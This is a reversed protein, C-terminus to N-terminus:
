KRIYLPESQGKRIMERATRKYSRAKGQLYGTEILQDFLDIVEGESIYGAGVYGGAVYAAARLRPHGNSNIREIATTINRLIRARKGDTVPLRIPAPPPPTPPVYRATWVEADPRHLLGRDISFFLPLICNKPAPDFGKYQGFEQEIGGFYAKFEDTSTVVPIRVMARCGLGSSSLWAAIVEPYSDFIAARFEEAYDRDPLGDFDLMAIGTWHTIDQYRRRGEVWACPTLAPLRTKLRDRTAKDETSRIREILAATKPRPNKIRDLLTRLQVSGKPESDRINGSYYQILPNFRTM